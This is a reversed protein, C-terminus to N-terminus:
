RTEKVNIWSHKWMESLKGFWLYGKEWENVDEIEVDQYFAHLIEECNMGAKAMWSGGLKRDSNNITDIDWDFAYM